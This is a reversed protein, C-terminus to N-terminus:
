PIVRRQRSGAVRAGPPALEAGDEYKKRFENTRARLEDNTLKEVDAELANIDAVIGQLRKVERDNASGFFRQAISQLM